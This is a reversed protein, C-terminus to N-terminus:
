VSAVVDSKDNHADVCPLRVSKVQMGGYGVAFRLAEIETEFIAFGSWDPYYALWITM